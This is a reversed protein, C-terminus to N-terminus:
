AKPSMLLFLNKVSHWSSQGSCKSRWCWPREKKQRLFRQSTSLWTCCPMIVCRSQWFLYTFLEQYNHTLKESNRDWTPWRTRRLSWSMQSKLWDRSSSRRPSIAILHSYIKTQLHRSSALHYIGQFLSLESHPCFSIKQLSSLIGLSWWCKKTTQSRPLIPRSASLKMRM